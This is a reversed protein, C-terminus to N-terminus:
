ITYFGFFHWLVDSPEEGAWSIDRRWELGEEGLGVGVEQLIVIDFVLFMFRGSVISINMCKRKKAYQAEACRLALMTNMPLLMM